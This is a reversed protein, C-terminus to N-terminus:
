MFHTTIWMAPRVGGGGHVTEDICYGAVCVRGDQHVIGASQSSVGPSRLWWWSPNSDEDYAMRNKNYADSIWFSGQSQPNKLTATGGFHILVEELSLLFLFDDTDSGGATGYWPNSATQVKTKKIFSKEKVSFEYYMKQNLFHRIDCGAWDSNIYTSCFEMKTDLVSDTVVLMCDNQIKLVRFYFAGFPILSGVSVKPTHTFISPLSNPAFGFAIALCVVAEQAREQSLGIEDSFSNIEQTLAFKHRAPDTKKIENLREAMNYEMIAIKLTKGLKPKDAFIDSVLNSLTGKSPLDGDLRLYKSLNKEHM